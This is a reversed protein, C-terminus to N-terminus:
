VINIKTKEIYYRREEQFFPAPFDNPNATLVSSKDRIASAAILTDGDCYKSAYAKTANHRQYCTTLVAAIKFTLM